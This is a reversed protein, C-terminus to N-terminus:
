SPNASLQSSVASLLEHFGEANEKGPTARVKNRNGVANIRPAYGVGPDCHDDRVLRVCRSDRRRALASKLRYHNGRLPTRALLM